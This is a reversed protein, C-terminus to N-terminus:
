LGPQKYIWNNQKCFEYYKSNEKPDKFTIYAVKLKKLTTLKTFDDAKLLTLDTMMLTELNTMKFLESIDTLHSLNTTQFSKIQNSNVFHPISSVWSMYRLWVDQIHTLQGIHNLDLDKCKELYLYTLNPFVEIIKDVNSLKRYIRLTKLSFNNNIKGLDLDSVTCIELNKLKDIFSHQKPNLGNELEFYKLNSFKEIDKLSIGKKFNKRLKLGRLDNIMNIESLSNIEGNAVFIDLQKANTLKKLVQLNGQYNELYEDIWLLVPIDHKFLIANIKDMILEEVSNEIYIRSYNNITKDLSNLELDSISNLKLDKKM